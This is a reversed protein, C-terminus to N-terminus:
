QTILTVSVLVTEDGRPLHFPESAALMKGARADYVVWRFPGKGRDAPAVWWSKTAGADFTGQWGDVDHWGGFSDQWQVVTWAQDPQAPWEGWLVQLEVHGGVPVRAPPRAPEPSPVPTPRPPLAATAARSPLAMATELGCVVTAAMIVRLVARLM